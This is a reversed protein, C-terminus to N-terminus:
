EIGMVVVNDLTELVLKKVSRLCDMTHPAIDLTYKRGLSEYKPVGLVHYPLFYTRDVGLSKVYRTLATLHEDDDNIGPILPVRIWIQKNLRKAKNLNDLILKPSPPTISHSSQGPFM